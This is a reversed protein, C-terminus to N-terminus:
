RAVEHFHQYHQIALDTKGKALAIDGLVTYVKYPDVYPKENEIELLLEEAIKTAEDLEGVKVLMRGMDAMVPYELNPRNIDIYRRRCYKYKELAMAWDGQTEYIYAMERQIFPHGEPKLPIAKHFYELAEEYKKMQQCVMGLEFYGFYVAATDPIAWFTRLAEEEYKDAEVENGQRMMMM